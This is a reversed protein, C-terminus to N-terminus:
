APKSKPEPEVDVANTRDVLQKHEQLEIKGQEECHELFRLFADDASLTHKQEVKERYVEPMRNQLWLRQAAVDPPFYEKITVKKGSATAKEAEREFGNARRFLSAEVIANSQEKSRTLALAFEEHRLKWASITSESVGLVEAIEADTLGRECLRSAIEIYEPEFKSPGGRGGKNGRAYQNGTPAPM